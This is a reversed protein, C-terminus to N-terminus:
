GAKRILLRARVSEDSNRSAELEEVVLGDRQELAAAWGILLRGNIAAIEIVAQGPGQAELRAPSLGAEALRRGILEHVPGAPPAPRARIAAALARVQALQAQATRADDIATARAGALPRLILLWALLLALLGAALALLLQERASRQNWWPPLGAMM